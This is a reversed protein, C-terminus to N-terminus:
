VNSINSGYGDPFRLEALVHLFAVKDELSMCYPAILMDIVEVEDNHELWFHPKVNKSEVCLRAFEDDKCKGNENMLTGLINDCVNKEIHMNDLNHRLTNHEWYPLDFFINMKTWLIDVDNVDNDRMSRRNIKRISNEFKGHKHKLNLQERLVDSCNLPSPANGNKVGMLCIRKFDLHIIEQYGNVIGWM